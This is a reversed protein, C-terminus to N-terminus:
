VPRKFGMYKHQRGQTPYIKNTKESSKAYDMADCFEEYTLKNERNMMKGFRVVDNKIADKTNLTNKLSEAYKREEPFCECIKFLLKISEECRRLRTENNNSSDVIVGSDNIFKAKKVLEANSMRRYKFPNNELFPFDQYLLNHDNDDVKSKIEYKKYFVKKNFFVSFINM